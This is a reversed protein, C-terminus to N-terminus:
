KISPTGVTFDDSSNNTDAYVTFGAAASAEADAKRTVVSGSGVGSENIISGNDVVSPLRKNRGSKDFCEVGDYIWDIPVAMYLNDAKPQDPNKVLCTAMFNDFNDQIKWIIFAPDLTSSLCSTGKDKWLLNLTLKDPTAPASQKTLGADDSYCAWYGAKSLDVSNTNGDVTHDVCNPAVVVQHGPLLPYEHGNGPFMWAFNFAPVFPYKSNDAFASPNTSRSPYVHAVCLSDLYATDTSNNYIILYQDNLYNKNDAGKCGNYYIEKIILQSSLSEKLDITVQLSEYVATEGVSGSFNMVLNNKTETYQASFSYMGPEVEFKAVGTQDAYASWVQGQQVNTAVVKVKEPNFVSNTSSFLNVHVTCFDVDDDDNCSSVFLTLM